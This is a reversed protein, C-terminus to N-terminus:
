IGPASAILHLGQYETIEEVAKQLGTVSDLPISLGALGAEILAKAIAGHSEAISDCELPRCQAVYDERLKRRQAASKSGPLLVSLTWDAAEAFARRDEDGFNGGAGRRLKRVLGEDLGLESLSYTALLLRLARAREAANKMGEHFDELLAIDGTEHALSFMAQALGLWADHEQGLKQALDSAGTESDRDAIPSIMKVANVSEAIVHALVENMQGMISHVGEMTILGEASLLEDLKDCLLNFPVGIGWPVWRIIEGLLRDQVLDYQGSGGSIQPPAAPRAPMAKM